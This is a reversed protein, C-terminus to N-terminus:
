WCEHPGKEIEISAKMSSVAGGQTSYPGPASCPWAMKVSSTESCTNTREMGQRTAHILNSVECEPFWLHFMEFLARRGTGRGNAKIREHSGRASKRSEEM